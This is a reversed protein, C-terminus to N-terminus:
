VAMDECHLADVSSYRDIEFVHIPPQDDVPYIGHRALIDSRGKMDCGGYAFFEVIAAINVDGEEPILDSDLTDTGHDALLAYPEEAILTRSAEAFRAAFTDPDATYYDWIADNAEDDRLVIECIHAKASAPIPISLGQTTTKM